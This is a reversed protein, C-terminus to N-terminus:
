LFLHTVGSKNIKILKHLYFKLTYTEPADFSKPSSKGLIRTFPTDVPYRLTVTDTTLFLSGSFLLLM